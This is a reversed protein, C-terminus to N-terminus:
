KSAAEKVLKQYDELTDIDVIGKEFSLIAVEDPNDNIIKRAGIDGELALLKEFMTKHFLVPTGIIGDYSCAVISQLSSKQLSFISQLISADLFPQDCVVIMVGDISPNKNMIVDIGVRISSAMGEEWNENMVVSVASNSLQSRISIAHAGLVLYVPMSVAGTIIRIQRNILTEGEFVLLQKPSGLRKSQGAAIILIAPYQIPASM